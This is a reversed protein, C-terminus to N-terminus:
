PLPWPVQFRQLNQCSPLSPLLTPKPAHFAHPYTNLGPEAQPVQDGEPLRELDGKGRTNFLIVVPVM